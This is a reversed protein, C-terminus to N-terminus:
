LMQKGDVTFLLVTGYLTRWLNKSKGVPAPSGRLLKLTSMVSDYLSKKTAEWVAFPSLSWGYNGTQEDVHVLARFAGVMPFLIAEPVVYPIDRNSFLAKPHKESAAFRQKAYAKSITGFEMEVTDWLSLIDLLIPSMHCLIKDRDEPTGGLALYQKLASEKGGYMSVPDKTDSFNGSPFLDQNFMLLIAIVTRVDIPNKEAIMQNQKWELREAFRDGGIEKGQFVDKLVGFANKMEELSKLDLAVSNNRAEAVELVSTLGTLVEFEVYKGKLPKEAALILRLTHGGDIDGHLSPDEFTMTVSGSGDYTLEKASLLIGRNRLHFEEHSEILSAAINKAVPSSLNQERPNTRMWQLLEEPIDNCNAYFRHKLVKSNTPSEMCCYSKVPLTIATDM